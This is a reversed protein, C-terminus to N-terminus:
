GVVAPADSVPERLISWREGALMAAVVIAIGLWWGEYTLTGTLLAALLAFERRIRLLAPLLFLVSFAHLNPTALLTVIGLWVGTDRGRLWVAIVLSALLVVAFATTGLFHLLSAGMPEWGPDSARALQALWAGYSGLGVLPLTILVLLIWPVAGLLAARTSRGAIALWAQAQSLKVAAM